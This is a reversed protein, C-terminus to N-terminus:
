IGIAAEWDTKKMRLYEKIAKDIPINYNSLDLLILAVEKFNEANVENEYLHKGRSSVFKTFAISVKLQKTM